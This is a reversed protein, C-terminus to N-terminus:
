RSNKSEFVTINRAIVNMDPCSEDEAKFKYARAIQSFGGDDWVAMWSLFHRSFTEILQYLDPNEWGEEDLTTIDPQLGPDGANDLRQLGLKVSVVMWDPTENENETRAMAANVGGVIGGNVVVTQEDRFMIAVQPPLLVALCDSLAVLAMPVMELAQVRSVDPELVIAFDAQTPSTTWFLDGAGAQRTRVSEIATEFPKDVERPNLLPPITLDNM